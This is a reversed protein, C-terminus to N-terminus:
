RKARCLRECFPYGSLDPQLKPIWVIHPKFYYEPLNNYLDDSRLHWDEYKLM